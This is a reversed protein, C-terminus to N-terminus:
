CSMKIEAIKKVLKLDAAQRVDLRLPRGEAYQKANEIDNLINPPLDSQRAAAVAKPGLVLAATFFKENPILYLIARKKSILRLGWSYKKGSKKWEESCDPYNESLHKKLDDWHTKAKELAAAIENDDPPNVMEIFKTFPM